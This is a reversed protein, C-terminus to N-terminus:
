DEEPIVKYGAKLLFDRLKDPMEAKIILGGDKIILGGDEEAEIGKGKCSPECRNKQDKIFIYRDFVSSIWKKVSADDLMMNVEVRVEIKNETDTIIILRKHDKFQYNIRVNSM